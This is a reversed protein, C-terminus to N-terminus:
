SCGAADSIRAISKDLRALVAPNDTAADAIADVVPEFDTQSVYLVIDAGAEFSRRAIEGASGFQTVGRMSSLDDTIIIGNFGVQDRIYAYAPPSISAPIDKTLGPVVLHGIMVAVPLQQTLEQFPRIDSGELVELPDTSVAQTHSDGTASGHGPFHKLTPLVGVERLGSAFAGAGVIVDDASDGFARDGVIAPGTDREVDVVPALDMNIGHSLLQRGREAAIDEIEAASLTALEAASQLQGNVNQIAQVRGGEEDAAFLIRHNDSLTALAAASSQDLDGAIFIGGPQVAESLMDTGTSAIQAPTIGIM